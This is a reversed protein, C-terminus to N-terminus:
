KDLYKTYPEVAHCPRFLDSALVGCKKQAWPKRHPARACTDVVEQSDACYAHMKWSTGPSSFISMIIIIIIIIDVVLRLNSLSDPDGSVPQGRVLRVTYYSPTGCQSVNLRWNVKVGLSACTDAYQGLSPCLCDQLNAECACIDYLCNHYYPQVDEVGHCSKFIDSKLKQCLHEAQQLRQANSDCPSPGPETPTDRCQPDTKWRNGFANINTETDGDLTLFDNHQNGDFTGCLGRTKGLMAPPARVYVRTRGDWLISIGNFLDAQMFLSSVMFVKVKDTHLPLHKVERGNVFLKHNHDMRIVDGKVDVTVSKTCSSEREVNDIAVSYDTDHLLYYSCTGTFDFRTGDFTVYHPSGSGLVSRKWSNAFASVSSVVHGSSDELDNDPNDDYRGCLGCTNGKM